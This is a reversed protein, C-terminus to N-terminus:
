VMCTGTVALVNSTRSMVQSQLTHTKTNTHRGWLSYIHPLEHDHSIILFWYCLNYLRQTEKHCKGDIKMISAATTVFHMTFVRGFICLNHQM